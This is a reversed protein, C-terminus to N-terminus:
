LAFAIAALGFAVGAGVRAAGGTPVASYTPTTTPAATTSAKTTTPYATATTHATTTIVTVFSTSTTSEVPYSAVGSSTSSSTSSSTEVPYSQVSTTTTTSSTITQVPYGGGTVTASTTTTSSSSADGGSCSPGKVQFPFSYQFTAGDDAESSIKIGYTKEEGLSCDVAWAYSGDKVEVGNAISDVVQLHAPDVGALLSIDAPGSYTGAQWKINFTKGAPVEQGKIPSVVVAYGDTPDAAFATAAFALVSAIVATSRM